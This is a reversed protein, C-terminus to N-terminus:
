QSRRGCSNESSRDLNGSQSRLAPKLLPDNADSISLRPSKKSSGWHVSILFQLKFIRSGITHPLQIHIENRWSPGYTRDLYAISSDKDMTNLVIDGFPRPSVTKLEAVSFKQNSFTKKMVGKFRYWGDQNQKIWFIDVFPKQNGFVFKKDQQYDKLRVKALAHKYFHNFELGVKEFVGSRALKEIKKMDKEHIIIDGDDDWQMQGGHRIQGLVSGGTLSYFIGHKTFIEHLREYVDYLGDMYKQDLKVFSIDRDIEIKKKERKEIVVFSIVISIAILLFFSLIAIGVNIKGKIYSNKIVWISNNGM